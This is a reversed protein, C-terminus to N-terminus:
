TPRAEQPMHACFRFLRIGDVSRHLSEFTFERTHLASLKKEKKKGKEKPKERQGKGQREKDQRKGKKEEKEGSKGTGKREKAKAKETGGKRVKGKIETEKEKSKQSSLSAAWTPSLCRFANIANVKPTNKHAM